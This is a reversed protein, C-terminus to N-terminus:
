PLLLACPSGLVLAPCGDLGAPLASTEREHELLQETGGGCVSGKLPASLLLLLAWCLKM